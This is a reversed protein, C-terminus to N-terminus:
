AQARGAQLRDRYRGLFVGAHKRYFASSALLLFTTAVCLGIGAGRTNADRLCIGGAVFTLIAVLFTCTMFGLMTRGGTDSTGPLQQVGPADSLLSLVPHVMDFKLIWVRWATVAISLLVMAFSFVTVIVTRLLDVDDVAYVSIIMAWVTTVLSFAVFYLVTVDKATFRRDLRQVTPDTDSVEVWTWPNARGSGCCRFGNANGLM